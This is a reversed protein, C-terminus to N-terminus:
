IQDNQDKRVPSSFYPRSKMSSSLFSFPCWLDFHVSKEIFFPKQPFFAVDSRGLTGLNFTHRLQPHSRGIKSGYQGLIDFFRKKVLFFSVDFVESTKHLPTFDVIKFIEPSTLSFQFEILRPQM